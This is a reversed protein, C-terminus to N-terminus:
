NPDENHKLHFKGDGLYKAGVKFNGAITTIIGTRRDVQRIVNNNTDTVILDGNANLTVGVPSNLRASIAQGGDGFYGTSLQYNGAFTNISYVTPAAAIITDCIASRIIYISVLLLYLYYVFPSTRKSLKTKSNEWLFFKNAPM